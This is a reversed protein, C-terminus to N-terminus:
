APKAQDAGSPVDGPPSPMDIGSDSVHSLLIRRASDLERIREAAGEEEAGHDPHAVLLQERFSRKVVSRSYPPETDLLGLVGRAWSHPDGVNAAPGYLSAASGVRLFGILDAGLGGQWYIARRLAEFAATRGPGSLTRLAYVATLAQQAPTGHEHDLDLHYFGGRDQVLRNSSRRLGIRDTQFRHRLRPQPIRRGLEVDTLLRGLDNRDDSSLAQSSRAVLGGLLMAAADSGGESPLTLDGIAVRRTPAVSRSFFAEIEAVVM